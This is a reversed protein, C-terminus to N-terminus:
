IVELKTICIFPGFLIPNERSFYKVKDETIIKGNKTWRINWDISAPHIIPNALVGDGKDIEWCWAAIMNIAEHPEKDWLEIKNAIEFDPSSKCVDVLPKYYTLKRTYCSEPFKIFNMKKWFHESEEPKCFLTLVLVGMQRFAESIMEFFVKGLGKKRYRFHIEFIDIDVYIENRSWTLFGVIKGNFEFTILEGREFSIEIVNLNCYFGAKNKRDEEILWAEITSLDSLSPSFNIKYM